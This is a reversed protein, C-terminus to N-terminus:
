GGYNLKNLFANNFDRPEPENGAYYAQIGTHLDTFQIAVERFNSDQETKATGSAEKPHQLVSSVM